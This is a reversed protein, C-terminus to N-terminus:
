IIYIYIYIYIQIGSLTNAAISQPTNSAIYDLRSQHKRPRKLPLISDLNSSPDKKKLKAQKDM